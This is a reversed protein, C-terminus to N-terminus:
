AKNSIMLTKALKRFRCSKTLVLCDPEGSYLGNDCFIPFEILKLYRNSFVILIVLLHHRRKPVQIFFLFRHVAM